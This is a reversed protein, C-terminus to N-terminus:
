PLVGRAEARALIEGILPGKAAAYANMDTWERGALECKLRAYRARDSEDRRLWDRFLLHQREWDSGVDYVHVHVDRAPTRLMRHGPERVRLRYGARQLPGLYTAEATVDPVSVGIDVVPKAALGPVATSGVHEIRRATTGLATAIREHEARFREPWAPDYEVIRIDRQEVGGILEVDEAM